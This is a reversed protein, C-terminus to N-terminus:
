KKGPVVREESSSGPVFLPDGEHEIEGTWEDPLPEWFTDGLKFGPTYLAGLRKPRAAGIATIEAVPTKERGSTIVVKEGAHAKRILESLNTKAEFITASAM